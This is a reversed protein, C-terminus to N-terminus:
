SQQPNTPWIPNFPDSTNVPMDRLCQRYLLWISAVEKHMSKKVDELQTWDSDHLRKNRETRLEKWANLLLNQSALEPYKLLKQYLAYMDHIKENSVVDLYKVDKRYKLYLLKPYDQRLFEAVDSIDYTDLDIYMTDSFVM